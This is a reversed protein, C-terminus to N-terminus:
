PTAHPMWDIPMSREIAEAADRLPAVLHALARKQTDAQYPLNLALAAVIRGSRARLPVALSAVGIDHERAVFALSRDRADDIAFAIERRDVVTRPTHRMPESAALLDEVERPALGALLVRGVATSFAPLAEGLKPLPTAKHSEVRAVCRADAGDLVAVFASDKTRHSLHELWPDIVEDLRLASLYAHAYALVRPGLGYERHDGQIYGLHQLTMVIRRVSARSVGARAAIMAMSMRAHPHDFTRLVHFGRALSQMYNRSAEFGDTAADGADDDRDDNGGGNRDDADPDRAPPAVPGVRPDDRLSPPDAAIPEISLAPAPTM